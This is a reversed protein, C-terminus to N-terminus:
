TSFSDKGTHTISISQLERYELDVFIRTGAQTVICLQKDFTFTSDISWTIDQEDLLNLIDYIATNSKLTVRSEGLGAPFQVGNAGISVQIEAVIGGRLSLEIDKYKAIRTGTLRDVHEGDPVGLIAIVQTEFTGIQIAEISGNQLFQTLRDKMM